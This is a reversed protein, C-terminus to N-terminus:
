KELKGKAISTKETASFDVIQRLSKNM